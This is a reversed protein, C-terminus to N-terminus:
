AVLDRSLRCASNWIHPSFEWVLVDIHSCPEKHESPNSLEEILGLDDNFMKGTSMDFRLNVRIQHAIAEALYKRLVGQHDSLKNCLIREIAEPEWGRLKTTMTKSRAFYQRETLHQNIVMSILLKMM